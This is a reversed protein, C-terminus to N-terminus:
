SLLLGRAYTLKRSNGSEDARSYLSAVWSDIPSRHARNVSSGLILARPLGTFLSQERFIAFEGDPFRYLDHKEDYVFYYPWGYERFGTELEYLMEAGHRRKESEPIGWM